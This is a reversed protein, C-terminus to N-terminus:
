TIVINVLRGPVVVVKSIQKQGIFRQVNQNELALTKIQEDNMRVPVSIHGRLKGNVQVVMDLEDRQLAEPDAKPWGADIISDAHGMASWIQETIHPVIPALLLVATEMGERMVAKDNDSEPACASLANLMEMVAAIATNFKYRRGIDDNVKDITAHIKRRLRRQQETLTAANIQKGACDAVNAAAM